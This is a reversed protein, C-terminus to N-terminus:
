VRETYKRFNDLIAQWGQRQMDVPNMGEAEFNEMVFTGADTEMFGIQVKRGDGMTYEIDKHKEVKDYVGEMDFGFSGDKAEMRYNFKGGPRLDNEARPTHWDDSAHNWNVIHEPQTWCNWVKELPAAVTTQVTVVTKTDDDAAQQLKAIDIKKMQMMAGTARQARGPDPDALLQLLEDPVIQWSVGFPDKLWGCQSEMGGNATFKEWFYDVEDQGSCQVVFSLAENFAFDAGMTDDMVMFTQDGCLRFQAHMVKGENKKDDAGYHLIGDVTSGEFISTYLKLAAEANGSREGTFLLSPVFHRGGVDSMKGWSIQWSLGYRDQVWGYKESWPYKDLPMLASGGDSLKQWVADTEAETELTVYFSTSPNFKFHPGGNLASFRQGGLTFDVIFVAEGQRQVNEIKSNKFISTYFNAAEEAQTDFWLFPTIEHHNAM